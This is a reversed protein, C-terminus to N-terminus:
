PAPLESCQESPKRLHRAVGAHCRRPPLHLAKTRLDPPASNLAQKSSSAHQLIQWRAPLAATQRCARVYLSLMATPQLFVPPEASNFLREMGLQGLLGRATFVVPQPSLLKTAEMQQDLLVFGLQWKPCESRLREQQM